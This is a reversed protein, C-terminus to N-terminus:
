LGTHKANENATTAHLTASCSARKTRWRWCSARSSGTIGLSCQLQCLERVQLVNSFPLLESDPISNGPGRVMVNYPTVLDGMRRATEFQTNGLEVLLSLLCGLLTVDTKQIPFRGHVPVILNTRADPAAQATGASPQTPTSQANMVYNQQFWPSQPFM